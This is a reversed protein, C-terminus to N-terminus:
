GKLKAELAILRKEESKNQQKGCERFARRLTREAERSDGLAIEAQAVLRLVRPLEAYFEHKNLLQTATDLKDMTFKMKGELIDLEIEVLDLSLLREQDENRIAIKMAQKLTKRAEEYHEMNAHTLALNELAIAESRRDLINRAAELARKGYQLAEDWSEQLISLNALNTHCAAQVQVFEHQSAMELAGKYDREAQPFRGLLEEIIAINALTAAQGYPNGISKWGRMAERLRTLSAKLKGAKWDLLALNNSAEIGLEKEKGRKSFELTQEYFRRAARFNGQGWACMGLGNMTAAMLEDQDKMRRLANRSRELRDRAKDYEAMQVYTLGLETLLRNRYRATQGFTKRDLMTNFSEVAEDMEGLFRQLRGRACTLDMARDLQQESPPALINELEADFQRIAEQTAERRVREDGAIKETRLDEKVKGVYESRLRERGRHLRSKIAQVSLDTERAIERLTAGQLHFLEIVQREGSPLRDIRAQVQDRLQADEAVRQPSKDKTQAHQAADLSVTLRRRGRGLTIAHRQVIRKFWGPFASPTRLSLLDCYAAIFAEQRADEALERDGLISFAYQLAMDKFRDYLAEYAKEDGSQADTVLSEIQEM